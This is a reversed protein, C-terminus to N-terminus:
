HRGRYCDTFAQVVAPLLKQQEATAKEENCANNIFNALNNLIEYRKQELKIAQQENMPNEKQTDGQEHLATKQKIPPKMRNKRWVIPSFM